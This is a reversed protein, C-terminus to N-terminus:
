CTRYKRWTEEAEPWAWSMRRPCKGGQQPRQKRGARLCSSRSRRGAIDELGPAPGNGQRVSDEERQASMEKLLADLSDEQSPM